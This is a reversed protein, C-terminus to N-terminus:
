LLQRRLCVSKFVLITIVSWSFIPISVKSKTRAYVTLCIDVFIPYKIIADSILPNRTCLWVGSGATVCKKLTPPLGLLFIHNMTTVRKVYIFRRPEQDVLSLMVKFFIKDVARTNSMFSVMRFVNLRMVWIFCKWIGFVFLM